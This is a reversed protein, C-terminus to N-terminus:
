YKNQPLVSNGMKRFFGNFIGRFIFYSQLSGYSLGFKYGYIAKVFSNIIYFFMLLYDKNNRLIYSITRVSYYERWLHQLNRKKSSKQNSGYKKYLKRLRLIEGGDVLLKFKRKIRLGFELDEFGFFLNPDPLIGEEFVRRHVIPFQNGAIMDVELIGDLNNDPIRNIRCTVYNYLVGSAGIIGINDSNDYKKIINFITEIQNTASPPDDDDVWLVWEWGEEFLNKLGWYAGGAPGSNSGISFHSIISDPFDNAIEKASNDPDNDVILIKRPPMTQRLLVEITNKLIQPRKYTIIFASYNM